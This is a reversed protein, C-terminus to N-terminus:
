RRAAALVIEAIIPHLYGLQVALQAALLDPVTVGIGGVARRDRAGGGRAYRAAAYHQWVRGHRDKRRPPQITLAGTDRQEVRLDNLLVGPLRVTAFGLTPSVRRLRVFEVVPLAATAEPMAAALLRAHRFWRSCSWAMLPDMFLSPKAATSPPSLM